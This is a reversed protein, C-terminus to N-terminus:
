TVPLLYHFCMVGTDDRITVSIVGLRCGFQSKVHCAPEISRSADTGEHRVQRGAKGRGRYLPVVRQYFEIPQEVHALAAKAQELDASVNDPRLSLPQM